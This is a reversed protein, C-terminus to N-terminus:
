LRIESADYVAMHPREAALSGLAKAFQRSAPVQFHASLSERDQWEEVFVLRSPNESDIHVAHSICGPEARSRTVHERSLALVEAFSGEKATVSGLVVIM